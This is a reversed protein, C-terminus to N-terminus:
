AHSRSTRANIHEGTSISRGMLRPYGFLRNATRTFRTVFSLRLRSMFQPAVDLVLGKGRYDKASLIMSWPIMSLTM